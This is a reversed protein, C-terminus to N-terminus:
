HKNKLIIIIKDAYKIPVILKSIKNVVKLFFSMKVKPKTKWSSYGLYNTLYNNDFPVIKVIDLNNKKALFCITDLNIFTSFDGTRIHYPHKFYYSSSSQNFKLILKGNIALLSSVKEFFSLLNPMYYINEFSTIIDYKQELEKPLNDPFSGYYCNLNKGQAFNITEKQVDIGFVNLVNNNKLAQLFAGNSCGVDLVKSTLNTYEKILTM